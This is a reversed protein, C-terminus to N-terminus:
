AIPRVRPPDSGGLAPRDFQLARGAIPHGWGRAPLARGIIPHARGIM